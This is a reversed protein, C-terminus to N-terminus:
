NKKAVKAANDEACILYIQLQSFLVYIDTSL